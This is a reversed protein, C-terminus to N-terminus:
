EVVPELAHSFECGTWRECPVSPLRRGDLEIWSNRYPQWQWEASGGIPDMVAEHLVDPLARRFRQLLSLSLRNVRVDNYEWVTGPAGLPRPTGKESQGLESKGGRVDDFPLHAIYACKYRRAPDPDEADHIVTLFDNVRSLSHPDSEILCINNKKNGNFEVLGLNAYAGGTATGKEGMEQYRRFEDELDRSELNESTLTLPVGRM